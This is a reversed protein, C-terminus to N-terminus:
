VSVVSQCCSKCFTQGGPISTITYWLYACVQIILLVICLGVNEWALAVVLTLIIAVFYTIVAAARHLSSFMGKVQKVPGFLFLTAFIMAINGFSYFIAFGTINVSFLMMTGIFSLLIGICACGIFGYIRTEYSLKFYKGLNFGDDDDQQSFPNLSDLISTEENSESALM